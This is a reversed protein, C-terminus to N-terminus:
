HLEIKREDVEQGSCSDEADDTLSSICSLFALCLLALVNVFRSLPKDGTPSLRQCPNELLRALM